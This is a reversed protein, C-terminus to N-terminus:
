RADIITREAAESIRCELKWLSSLREVWHPSVRHMHDKPLIWNKSTPARSYKSILYERPGPDTSFLDERSVSSLGGLWIKHRYSKSHKGLDSIPDLIGPDVMKCCLDYVLQLDDYSAAATRASGYEGPELEANVDAKSRLLQQVIETRDHSSCEKPKYRNLQWPYRPIASRNSCYDGTLEGAPYILDSSHDIMPGLGTHESPTSNTPVSYLKDLCAMYSNDIMGYLENSPVTSLKATVLDSNGSWYRLSISTRPDDCIYKLLASKGSGAKGSVWFVGNKSRLWKSFGIKDFCPIYSNDIMGYLETHESLASNTPPCFREAM